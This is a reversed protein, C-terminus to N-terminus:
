EETQGKSEDSSDDVEIKPHVISVIVTDENNLIKINEFSLDRVHISDGIKLRSIDIEIHQPIDRPLCEVDLKHTLEQLIGGDKVGASSGVLSIPLEMQLVQGLTVGQVDFHVVRDTVPDFQVDKIICGLQEEGDFSLQVISSESTFVLKNLAVEEVSFTIQDKGKSYYIGPVFGSKRLQNIAGKTTIERKKAKLIKEAM